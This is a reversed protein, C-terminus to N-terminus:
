KLNFSGGTKTVFSVRVVKVKSQNKSQLAAEGKGTKSKVANNRKLVQKSSTAEDQQLKGKKMNGNNAQSEKKFSELFKIVM